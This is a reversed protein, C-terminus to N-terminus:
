VNGDDDDDNSRVGRRAAEEENKLRSAVQRLKEPMAMLREAARRQNLNEFHPANCARCRGKEETNLQGLVQEILKAASELLIPPPMARNM